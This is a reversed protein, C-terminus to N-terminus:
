QLRKYFVTAYAGSNFQKWRCGEFKMHLHV